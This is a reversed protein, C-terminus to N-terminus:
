SSFKLGAMGEKFVLWNWSPAFVSVTHLNAMGPAGEDEGTLATSIRKTTLYLAVGDLASMNISGTPGPATPDLCADWTYVGASPARGRTGLSTVARYWPGPRHRARVHGSILIRAELLPAYAEVRELPTGSATFVGHRDGRFCWLLSRCPHNFTLEVKHTAVDPGVTVHEEHLQLVEILLTREASAVLAREADNLFIYEVSIGITPAHTVDVGAVERALDVVIEVDAYPLAILPLAKAPDRTFWFLLPLYLTRVCGEPDDTDFNTMTSYAQREDADRHLEDYLRFYTSTHEDIKQGGIWVSVRECLAEMPYWAEGPGRRITAVITVAHVLDGLRDLSIACRHGFSADGKFVLTRHDTAFRTHREFGNEFFSQSPDDGELAADQVSRAALQLHAM